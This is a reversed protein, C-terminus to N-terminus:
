RLKEYLRQVTGTDDRYTQKDMWFVNECAVIDGLANTGTLFQINVAEYFPAAADGAPSRARRVASAIDNAENREISITVLMNTSSVKALVLHDASAIRDAFQGQRSCGLCPLLALLVFATGFLANLKM